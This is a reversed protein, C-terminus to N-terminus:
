RRVDEAPATAKDASGESPGPFDSLAVFAILALVIVAVTGILTMLVRRDKPKPPGVSVDEDTVHTNM